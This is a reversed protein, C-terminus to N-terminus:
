VAAFETLTGGNKIFELARRKAEDSLSNWIILEDGTFTVTGIDSLSDPDAEAVMCSNFAESPVANRVQDNIVTVEVFQGSGSRRLQKDGPLQASVRQYCVQEQQSRFEIAPGSNGCAALAILPSVLLLRLTTM